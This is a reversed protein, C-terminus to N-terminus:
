YCRKLLDVANEYEMCQNFIILKITSLIIFLDCKLVNGNKYVDSYLCEIDIREKPTLNLKGVVQSIGTLGSPSDFRQEWGPFVSLM